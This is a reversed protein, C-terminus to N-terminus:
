RIAELNKRVRDEPCHPCVHRVHLKDNRRISLRRWGEAAEKSAPATLTRGCGNDCHIIEAMESRGKKAARAHNPETATTWGTISM